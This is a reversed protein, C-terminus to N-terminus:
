QTPVLAIPANAFHLTSHVVHGVYRSGTRSSRGVVLLQAGAALTVLMEAAFGRQIHETVTVEPHRRRWPKLLATLEERHDRELEGPRNSLGLVGSQNTFMAPLSWARAARLPVGHAAAARFAFDLVAAAENEETPVGAVIEGKPPRRSVDGGRIMVVPCVARSLVRLGVSGLLFGTVPGPRRSGLVIMQAERGRETLLEAEPLAVLEASAEVDDYHDGVWALASHLAQEAAQHERGADSLFFPEHGHLLLLPAGLRRAEGAAWGVALLSDSTGDVGVIIPQQM